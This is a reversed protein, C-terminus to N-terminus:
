LGKAEAVPTDRDNPPHGRRLMGQFVRCAHSKTGYARKTTEDNVWALVIVRRDQHFRFFLRYQQFFKARRWHRHEPGLTLGQRFDARGPDRPIVERVLKNIAALRKSASKQSLWRM